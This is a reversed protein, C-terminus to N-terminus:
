IRYISTPIHCLVSVHWAAEYEGGVYVFCRKLIMGGPEMDWKWGVERAQEQGVLGAGVPLAVGNEDLGLGKVHTHAAVRQVKTTSQVEEIQDVSFAFSFCFIRATQDRQDELICM